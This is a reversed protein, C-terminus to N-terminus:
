FNNNLREVHRWAMEFESRDHSLQPNAGVMMQWIQEKDVTQNNLLEEVIGDRYLGRMRLPRRITGRSVLVDKLRALAGKDTTLVIQNAMHKVREM